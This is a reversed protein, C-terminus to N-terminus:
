SVTDLFGQGFNKLSQNLKVLDDDPIKRITKGDSDIIEVQVTDNEELINFKLKVDNTELHKEAEAILAKLEDRSHTNSQKDAESSDTGNVADIRVETKEDQAPPKDVAKASTANESRLEQKVDISIEPINM